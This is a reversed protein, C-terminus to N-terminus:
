GPDCLPWSAIRTSERDAKEDIKKEEREKEESILGGNEKYSPGVIDRSLCMCSLDILSM